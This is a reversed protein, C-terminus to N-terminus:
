LDNDFSINSMSIGAVNIVKQSPSGSTMIPMVILPVM